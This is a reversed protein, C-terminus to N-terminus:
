TSKLISPIYPPHCILIEYYCRKRQFLINQAFQVVCGQFNTMTYIYFQFKYFWLFINTYTWVKPGTAMSICVISFRWSFIDWTELRQSLKQKYFYCWSLFYNSIFQPFSEKVVTGITVLLFRNEKSVTGFFKLFNKEVWIRSCMIQCKRVLNPIFIILLAALINVLFCIYRKESFPPCVGSNFFKNKKEIFNLMDELKM